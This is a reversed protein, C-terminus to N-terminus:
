RLVVLRQTERLNQHSLVVTYVGQPLTSTDLRRYATGSTPEDYRVTQVRRGNVDFLDLQTPGAHPYSIQVENGRAPNPTLTFTGGRERTVSVVDSYSQTGDFDYQALRYYSTGDLPQRDTHRYDSRDTTTGRGTLQDIQTFTKGDASREIAFYDNDIESATTWDLQVAAPRDTARFSLFEVPLAGAPAYLFNVCDIDLQSIGGTLSPNMNAQGASFPIHDINLAHSMEHKLLNEYNDNGTCNCVGVDDNIVVYGVAANQYTMGGQDQYTSSSSFLGGIGLTGSCNNLAPIQDCPDNFQVLMVRTTGFETQAYQFLGNSFNGCNSPLSRNFTGAVNLDVGGYNAEIATVANTVENLATSCQNDGNASTYVPLPTNEMDDWRTPTSGGSLYSCYSPATGNRLSHDLLTPEYSSAADVNNWVQTGAVVAKLQSVLANSRYVALQEPATGLNPAYEVHDGMDFPVLLQEGNVEAEYFAAYSLMVTQYYGTNMQQLFLLYREGEAVQLDGPVIMEMGNSVTRYSQLIFRDDTKLDGKIQEHVLLDSVYRTVGNEEVTYNRLVEALVVTPTYQATQGLDAFPRITSASAAVTLCLCACVLLQQLQQKVYCSYILFSSEDEIHGCAENHETGGVSFM